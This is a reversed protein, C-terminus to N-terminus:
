MWLCTPVCKGHVFRWLGAPFAACVCMGFFLSLISPLWPQYLMTYHGLAYKERILYADRDRGYALYLNGDDLVNVYTTTGTCVAGVESSERGAVSPCKVPEGFAYFAWFFLLAALGTPILFQLHFPLSM